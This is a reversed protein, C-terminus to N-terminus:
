ALGLRFAHENEHKFWEAGYIGPVGGVAGQSCGVHRSMLSDGAARRTGLPPARVRLHERETVETIVDVMSLVNGPAERGHGHPGLVAVARRVLVRCRRSAGRHRDDPPDGRSRRGGPAASSSLVRSLWTPPRDAAQTLEDTM